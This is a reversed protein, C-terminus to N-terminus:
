FLEVSDADDAFKASNSHEKMRLWQLLPSADGLMKQNALFMIIQQKVDSLKLSSVVDNAIQDKNASSEHHLQEIIKNLLCSLDGIIQSTRDQFQIGMVLGNISESTKRSMSAADNLLNTFQKNQAMISEILEDIRSKLQLNETMDYHALDDVLQSSRRVSRSVSGVDQQMQDSLIKIHESLGKVEQAIIRFSAGAEGARAAEIQTNLALMNTQKTLQQVQDICSEVNAINEAANSITMVMSMALKSVQLIKEIADALPEYLIEVSREYPITEGQLTINRALSIVQEMRTSHDLSQASLTKFENVIKIANSEVYHSLPMLQEGLAQLLAVQMGLPANAEPSDALNSHQAIPIVVM